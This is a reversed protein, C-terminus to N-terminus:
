INGSRFCSIEFLRNKKIRGKGELKKVVEEFSISKEKARSEAISIDYIDEVESTKKRLKKNGSQKNKM